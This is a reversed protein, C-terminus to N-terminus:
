SSSLEIQPPINKVNTLTEQKM